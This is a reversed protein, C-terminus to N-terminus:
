SEVCYWGSSQMPKLRIFAVRGVLLQTNACTNARSNSRNDLYYPVISYVIVSIILWECNWLVFKNISLCAHSLRQSLRIVVPLILWTLIKWFFSCFNTSFCLKWSVRMWFSWSSACMFRVRCDWRLCVGTIMQMKEMRLKWVFLYFCFFNERAYNSESGCLCVHHLNGASLDSWTLWVWCDFGLNLSLSRLCGELVECPVTNLSLMVVGIGMEGELGACAHICVAFCYITECCRM